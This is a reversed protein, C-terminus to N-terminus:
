GFFDQLLFFESLFLSVFFEMTWLHHQHLLIWIGCGNRDSKVTKKWTKELKQFRSFSSMESM